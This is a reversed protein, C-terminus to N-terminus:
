PQWLCGLALCAAHLDGDLTALPMNERLALELYAADYTSLKFRRALHLTDSLAHKQTQLDTEIDMDSLLGIFASVQAETAAAKTQAKLLVNGAELAWIQPVWATAGEAMYDLVRTAYSIRDASGDQLLWRMVVSNDLVFRM